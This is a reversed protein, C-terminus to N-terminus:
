EIEPLDSLGDDGDEIDQSQGRRSSHYEVSHFLTRGPAVDAASKCPQVSQCSTVPVVEEDKGRAIRQATLAKIDPETEEIVLKLFRRVDCPDELHWRAHSDGKGVKVTVAHPAALFMSEDSTSDGMCLVSTYTKSECAGIVIAGKEVQLSAVEVTKRGQVLRCALNGLSLQLHHVLEKCKLIGYDEDCKGYHWIIASNKEEVESEPTTREFLEMIPKIQVKWEESTEKIQEMGSCPVWKHQTEPGLKSFGHEAVLTFSRYASFHQSLFTEDRGSVIFVDLDPREDLAQLVVRLDDDPVALERVKHLECLTGDYDLFVAKQGAASSFFKAAISDKLRNKGEARRALKSELPKQLDELIKGAWYSSDTERIMKQMKDTLQWKTADELVDGKAMELGLEIFSAVADEDYPNVILADFLEQAAGALESLVLVGPVIKDYAKPNIPISRDHIKSAIFEKAVLNMGDILPTVLCCDARAYLAALEEMGIGRHIYVLPTNLPTSFRGNIKSIWQHVEDEMRKYEEVDQRSPVSIFLFISQTHDLCERSGGRVNKMMRGFSAGFKGWVSQTDRREEEREDFKERMKEQWELLQARAAGDREGLGDLKRQKSQAANELYKEIAALKQSFGKTYDLREVSLILHKGEYTKTYDELHKAFNETNMAKEIDKCNAGIPFVGLRTRHGGHDVHDIEPSFGLLRVVCSRFHRVYSCTHFGVLDAGLVGELLEVCQPLLFLVEYPPFPTHLFFAIKLKGRVDSQARSRQSVTRVPLDLDHFQETQTLDHFQETQSGDFPISNASCASDINDGVDGIDPLTAPRLEELSLGSAEVADVDTDEAPPLHAPRGQQTTDVGGTHALDTQSPVRVPMKSKERLMKPVLFLHYDQVWILDDSTACKLIVDAFKQNVRKYSEAWSTKFKAYPTMWHLLPWLSANSYGNYFEEVETDTLWVPVLSFSGSELQLKEEVRERDTVAVDTGPWGIWLLQEYKEVVQNFASVLGGSSRKVEYDDPAEKDAHRKLTVPLRNSVIIVRPPM